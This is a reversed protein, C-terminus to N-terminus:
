ANTESWTYTSIPKASVVGIATPFSVYHYNRYYGTITLVKALADWNWTYLYLEAYDFDYSNIQVYPQSDSDTNFTITMTFNVGVDSCTEQIFISDFNARNMGFDHSQKLALVEAKIGKFKNTFDKACVDM